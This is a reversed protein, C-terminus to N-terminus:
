AAPYNERLQAKLLRQQRRLAILVFDTKIQVQRVLLASQIRCVSDYPCSPAAHGIGAGMGHGM